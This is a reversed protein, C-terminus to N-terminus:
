ALCLGATSHSRSHGFCPRRGPEVHTRAPSCARVQVQKSAAPASDLAKQRQQAKTYATARDIYQDYIDTGSSELSPTGHLNLIVANASGRESDEYFSQPASCVRRVGLQCGWGAGCGTATM